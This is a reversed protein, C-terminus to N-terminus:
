VAKGALSKRREAISYRLVYRSVKLDCGVRLYRAFVEPEHWTWFEVGDVRPAQPHLNHNLNDVWSDVERFMEDKVASLNYGSDVDLQNVHIYPRGWAGDLWGYFHGHAEDDEDVFLIMRRSDTQSFFRARCEQRYAEIEADVGERRLFTLARSEFTPFLAWAIPDNPELRYVRLEGTM